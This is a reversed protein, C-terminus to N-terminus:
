LNPSSSGDSCNTEDQQNGAGVHRIKLQRACGCAFPFHGNAPREASSAPPQGFQQQCFTRRQRQGAANRSEQERGPCDAQYAAKRRLVNGVQLDRVEIQAHEQERKDNRKECADQESQGRHPGRKAYRQVVRQLITSRLAARSGAGAARLLNQHDRLDSQRENQKNTGSEQYLAKVLEGGNLGSEIRVANESGVHRQGQVLILGGDLM